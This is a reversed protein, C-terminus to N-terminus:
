IRDGLDTCIAALAKKGRSLRTAVTGAPIRLIDSIESYSKEELYYLTIVTRYDVPLAQICKHMEVKLMKQELEEERDEKTPVSDLIWEQDRVAVERKHKRIYDIGQNHIIRFIWSSFKKSTDFSNIKKYGKILGDQVVDVAADEDYVITRAYNILKKQYRKVLEEYLELEGQQMRKAIEEDTLRQAEKM